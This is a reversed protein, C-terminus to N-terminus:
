PTASPSTAPTVVVSEIKSRRWSQVNAYISVLAMAVIIVVMMILASKPVRAPHSNEPAEPLKV